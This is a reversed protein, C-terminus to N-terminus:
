NLCNDFIAHALGQTGTQNIINLDALNNKLTDVTINKVKSIPETDRILGNLSNLYSRSQNSDNESELELKALGFLEEGNGGSLSIQSAWILFERSWMTLLNTQTIEHQSTISPRTSNGSNSLSYFRIFWPAGKCFKRAGLTIASDLELSFNFYWSSSLFIARKFYDLCNKSAIGPPLDSWLINSSNQRSIYSVTLNDSRYELSHAASLAAYLEIFHSDNNQLPGGTAPTYDTRQTNGILYVSDFVDQSQETFYQLAAQSNIGFLHSEAFVSCEDDVPKAFSFYPLLPTACIKAGERLGRKELEDDIIKGITPVGAAGTGGFISGFLHIIVPEKNGGDRIGGEIFEYIKSWVSEGAKGLADADLRSMVAAGIPPKGRFGVKLDASREDDTYLYDMLYALGPSSSRMSERKFIKSLSSSDVIDSLPNWIGFNQFDGEAFSSAGDSFNTHLKEALALRRSTRDGNGNAADADILLAGLTASGLLGISHAFSLSEICKAGSGGIGIAIIRAM